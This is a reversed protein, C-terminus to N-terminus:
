VHARPRAPPEPQPFPGEGSWAMRSSRMAAMDNSIPNALLLPQVGPNFLEFQRPDIFSYTVAEQTVVPLWCVVCSQCTRM